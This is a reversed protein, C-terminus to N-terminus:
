FVWNSVSRKGCFRVGTALVIDYPVCCGAASSRGGGAQYWRSRCGCAMRLGGLGSQGTGRSWHVWITLSSFFVM